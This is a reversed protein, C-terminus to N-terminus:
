SHAASPKWTTTPGPTGTPEACNPFRMASASRQVLFTHAPQHLQRDRLAAGGIWIDAIDGTRQCKTARGALPEANEVAIVYMGLAGAIVESRERFEEVDRAWTVINTFAGAAGYARRDIPKM